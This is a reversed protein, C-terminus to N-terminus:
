YLRVAPPSMAKTSLQEEFVRLVQGHLNLIENEDVGSENSPQYGTYDIRDTALREVCDLFAALIILETWEEPVGSATTDDAPMVYPKCYFYRVALDAPLGVLTSAGKARWEGLTKDEEDDWIEHVIGADVSGTSLRGNSDTTGTAETVKYLAPFVRRTSNELAENLEADTFDKKGLANAVDRLKNRLRSRFGARTLGSSGGPTSQGELIIPM